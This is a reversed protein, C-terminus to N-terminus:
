YSYFSFNGGVISPNIVLQYELMKLLTDHLKVKNWRRKTRNARSHLVLVSIHLVRTTKSGQDRLKLKKVM